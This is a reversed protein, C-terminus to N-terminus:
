KKLSDVDDASLVKYAKADISAQQVLLEVLLDDATDLALGPKSSRGSNGGSSVSMADMKDIGLRSRNSRNSRDTRGSVSVEDAPRDRSPRDPATFTRPPFNGRERTNRGDQAFQGQRFINQEDPLDNSTADLTPRRERDANLRNSNSRERYPRRERDRDGMDRGERDDKERLERESRPTDLPSNRDRDESKDIIEFKSLDFSKELKDFMDRRQNIRQRRVEDDNGGSKESPRRERERERSTLSSIERTFEDFLDNGMVPSKIADDIVKTLGFKDERDLPPPPLPPPSTPSASATQVTVTPSLPNTFSQNADNSKSPVMPPPPKRRLPSFSSSDNANFGTPMPPPQRSRYEPEPPGQDVSGKRSSSPTSTPTTKKRLSSPLLVSLRFDSQSQAQTDPALESPSSDKRNLRGPVSDNIRNFLSSDPIPVDIDTVVSDRLTDATTASPLEPQIKREFGPSILSNLESGVYMSTITDKTPQVTESVVDKPEARAPNPPLATPPSPPSINRQRQSSVTRDPPAPGRENKSREKLIERERLRELRDRERERREAREREKDRDGNGTADRDRERYRQRDSSGLDREKGRERERYRDRDRERDRYERDRSRQPLDERSRNPSNDPREAADSPSTGNRM